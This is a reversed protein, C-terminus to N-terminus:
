QATTFQPYASLSAAGALRLERPLPAPYTPAEPLLTQFVGRSTDLHLWCTTCNAIQANRDVWSAVTRAVVESVGIEVSARTRIERYSFGTGEM